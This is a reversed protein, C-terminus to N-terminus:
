TSRSEVPRGRHMPPPDENHHNAKSTIRHNILQPHALSVRGARRASRRPYISPWRGLALRCACWGPALSRGAFCRPRTM